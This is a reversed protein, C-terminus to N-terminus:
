GKACFDHTREALASSGTRAGLRRHRDGVFPEKRSSRQRDRLGVVEEPNSGKGSYFIKVKLQRGGFEDPAFSRRREKAGLGACGNPTLASCKAFFIGDAGKEVLARLNMM